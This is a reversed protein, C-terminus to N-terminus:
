RFLQQAPKDKMLEVLRRQPESTCNDALRKGARENMLMSKNGLQLWIVGEASDSLKVVGTDTPEVHMHYRKKGLTLHFRGALRPDTAVTIQKGDDCVSHGEIPKKLEAHLEAMASEYVDAVVPQPVIVATVTGQSMSSFSVGWLVLASLAMRLHCSVLQPMRRKWHIELSNFLFRVSPQRCHSDLRM